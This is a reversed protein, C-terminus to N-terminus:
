RRGGAELEQLYKGLCLAIADHQFNLQRALAIAETGQQPFRQAYVLLLARKDNPDVPIRRLLGERSPQKGDLLDAFLKQEPDAKRLDDLLTNWHSEALEKAGSRTAELYVLCHHATKNIDKQAVLEGAEKLNGRLFATEFSPAGAKAKLFGDVDNACACLMAALLKGISDREGPPLLQLLQDLAQKANANDGRVGHVRVIDFLAQAKQGVNQSESQLVQVLADYKGDALLANNRMTRAVTKEALLPLAQEFLRAAEAFQGACLARFALRSIAQGCPPKAAAAQKVLKEGADLDPDVRGLLYIASAHEKSDIALKRYRPLLDVEPHTRFMLTQYLRHWDVLIPQDDLREEVM